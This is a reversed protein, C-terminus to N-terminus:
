KGGQLLRPLLFLVPLYYAKYGAERRDNAAQVGVFFSFMEQQTSHMGAAKEPVAEVLRTEEVVQTDQEAIMSFKCTRLLDEFFAQGDSFLKAAGYREPM